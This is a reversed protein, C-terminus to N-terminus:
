LSFVDADKAPPAAGLPKLRATPATAVPPALCGSRTATARAWLARLTAAAAQHRSKPCDQEDGEGEAEAAPPVVMVRQTPNPPLADQVNFLFSGLAGFYGEHELFLARFPESNQDLKSVRHMNDSIAKRAVSNQRLFNGTFVIRQLGHLKANLYAIQCINSAVMKNLARVISADSGHKGDGFTAAKAFFSATIDGPLKTGNPLEYDGGYIDEVLLNVDSANGEEALRGAEDFDGLTPCLLKCLGWFTGGGIASGSVREFSDRGNVRVVSVGSGINVLLFPFLAASGHELGCVGRGPAPSTGPSGEYWSSKSGASSHSPSRTSGESPVTASSSASSLVVSTDDTSPGVALEKIPRDLLWSIGQVVVGLEDVPRLEVGLRRRFLEAYKYAGGGTTMVKAMGRHLEHEEMLDVFKDMHDSRFTVFHFQGRLKDDVFSLGEDRLGWDPSGDAGLSKVVKAIRGDCWSPAIESEFFVLKALTGGIDLGLRSGPQAGWDACTVAMAQAAVARHRRGLSGCLSM